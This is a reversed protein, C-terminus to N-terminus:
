KMMENDKTHSRIYKEFAGGVYFEAKESVRKVIKEISINYIYSTFMGVSLTLMNIILIWLPLYQYGGSLYIKKFILPRVYTSFVYNETILYYVLSLSSVKNIVPTYRIKKNKFYFFLLYDMLIM